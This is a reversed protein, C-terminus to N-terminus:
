IGGKQPNNPPRIEEPRKLFIRRREMPQGEFNGEEFLRTLSRIQRSPGTNAIIRANM